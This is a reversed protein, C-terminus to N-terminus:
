DGARRVLWFIWGVLPVLVAYCVGVVLLTAEWRAM